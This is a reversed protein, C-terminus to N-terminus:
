SFLERARIPQAGLHPALALRLLRKAASLSAITWDRQAIALIDAGCFFDHRSSEMVASSYFSFGSEAQFRYTAFETDIIPNESVDESCNMAFGLAALLDLEFSRLISEQVKADLANGALGALAQQYFDIIGDAEHQESCTRLVIENVYLACYLSRGELVYRPNSQEYSTITKLNTSDLWSISMPTFAQPPFSLKKKKVVRVVSQIVGHNTTLFSSLIKSDTFKKSHLLYSPELEVRTKM